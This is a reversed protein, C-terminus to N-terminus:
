CDWSAFDRKKMEVDFYKKEKIFNYFGKLALYYILDDRNDMSIFAKMFQEDTKIDSFRSNIDDIETGGSSTYCSYGNASCYYINYEELFSTTYVTVYTGRKGVYYGSVLEYINKDGHKNLFGRVAYKTHKDPYDFNLYQIWSEFKDHHTSEELKNALKRLKNVIEMKQPYIWLSFINAFLIHQYL